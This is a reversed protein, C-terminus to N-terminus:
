RSKRGIQNQRMNATWLSPQNHGPRKGGEKNPPPLQSIPPHWSIPFKSLRLVVHPNKALSTNGKRFASIPSNTCLSLSAGLASKKKKKRRRGCGFCSQTHIESSLKNGRGCEQLGLKSRERKERRRERERKQGVFQRMDPQFRQLKM